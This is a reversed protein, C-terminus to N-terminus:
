QPIRSLSMSIGARGCRTSSALRSRSMPNFNTIYFCGSSSQVDGPITGSSLNRDAGQLSTCFQADSDEM